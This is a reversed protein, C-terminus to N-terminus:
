DRTTRGLFWPLGQSEQHRRVERLTQTVSLQDQHFCCCVGLGLARNLPDFHLVGLAAEEMLSRGRRWARGDQM